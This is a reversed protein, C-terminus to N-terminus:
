IFPCKQGRENYYYKQKGDNIICSIQKHLGHKRLLRKFEKYEEESIIESLVYSPATRVPWYIFAQFSIIIVLAAIFYKM